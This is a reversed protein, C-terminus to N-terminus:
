KLFYLWPLKKVKNVLWWSLVLGYLGSFILGLIIYDISPHYFKFLIFILVYQIIISTISIFTLIKGKKFFILIESFGVYINQLTVVIVLLKVYVAAKKFEPALAINVIIEAMFYIVLGALFLLALYSYFTQVIKKENLEEKSLLAFFIPQWVKNISKAAFDAIVAIGFATAYIGTEAKGIYTAMLLILASNKAWFSFSYPLVGMSEGLCEKLLSWNFKINIYNKKQILYYSIASFIISTFLLSYVRGQWGLKFAVVFLVTTLVVIVSNSNQFKAFALSSGESIWIISLIKGLFNGFTLIVAIVLWVFQLGYKAALFDKILYFCIIFFLSSAVTLLFVNGIYQSLADKELKFYNVRVMEQSGLGVFVALFGGIALFVSLTGYDAPTLYRTLIPLLLFPLIKNLLDSFIYTAAQKVIKLYKTKAIYRNFIM